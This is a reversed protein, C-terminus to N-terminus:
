LMVLKSYLVWKINGDPFICCSMTCNRDDKHIVCVFVNQEFNSCFNTSNDDFQDYLGSNKECIYLNM